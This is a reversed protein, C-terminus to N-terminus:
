LDMLHKVLYMNVILHLLTNSKHNAEYSHNSCCFTSIYGKQNLLKIVPLIMDDIEVVAGCCTVKPCNSEYSHENIKLGEKKYEEFCRMCLYGM